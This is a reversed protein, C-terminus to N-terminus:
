QGILCCVVHYGLGRSIGDVPGIEGTGYFGILPTQQGVVGQIAALEDGLRQVTRQRGACEFCLGAVPKGPLAAAARCTAAVATRIVADNGRGGIACASATFKGGLLIGVNVDRRVKGQFYADTSPGGSSAGVITLRDGLVEQVGAVLQKNTPLHCNGFLLLLRADPMKPLARGLAEGAQRHKRRVPPSVAAAVRVDGCLAFVAVANTTPSGHSTVVANASCGHILEGPFVSAVGELVKAQQARPVRTFLLVLRPAKGALAQAAQRAAGTGAKVPDGDVSLGSGAVLEAAASPALLVIAALVGLATRM